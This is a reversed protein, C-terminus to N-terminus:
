GTRRKRGRGGASRPQRSPIVDAAVGPLEEPGIDPKSRKDGGRRAIVADRSPHRPTRWQPQQGEVPQPRPEERRREAGEGGLDQGEARLGVGIPRRGDARHRRANAKEDEPGRGDDDGHAERLERRAEDPGKERVGANSAQALALLEGEEKGEGSDGDDRHRVDVGPASPHGCPWLSVLAAHRSTAARKQFRQRHSFSAERRISNQRDQQQPQQQPPQPRRSSSSSAAAASRAGPQRKCRGRRCRRAEPPLHALPNDDEKDESGPEAGDGLGVASQMDSEPPPAHTQDGGGVDDEGCDERSGDAEEAAEQVAGSFPGHRLLPAGPGPSAAFAATPTRLQRSAALALSACLFLPVLAGEEPPAAAAATPGPSLSARAAALARCTYCVVEDALAELSRVFVRCPPRLGVIAAPLPNPPAATAILCEPAKHWLVPREVLVVVFITAEPTVIKSADAVDASDARPRM